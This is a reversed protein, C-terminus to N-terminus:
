IDKRVKAYVEETDIGAEEWAKQTINIGEMRNGKYAASVVSELEDFLPTVEKLTIEPRTDEIPRPEAIPPTLYEAIKPTSVEPIIVGLHEELLLWTRDEDLLERNEVIARIDELFYEENIGEQSLMKILM